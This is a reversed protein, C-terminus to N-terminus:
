ENGYIKEIAHSWRSRQAKSIAGASLDHFGGENTLVKLITKSIKEIVDAQNVHKANIAYGCTKDIIIAPGGLDLCIVPLGHAMAELVVNGSSDHLSPFLLVDNNLYLESLAEKSVWNIWNINKVLGLNDALKRWRHEDPGQGVMTLQIKPNVQIAKAIAKIGLHMGKWYIFRGVYIIKLADHEKLAKVSHVDDIGIELTVKTKSWYCKPIVSRSEATKTYIISAQSFCIWMLPDLKILFNLIDRLFDLIFGKIGFGLRLRWSCREGGGVPGFIFPVGLFGMFSPHRVVGFTIHHVRDFHQNAHIRKALRYAGWQWLVYYLHVGRNGKKWRKAWVPLDYFVFHLNVPKVATQWAAEINTQNNARTLVWVEHDLKALELAWHWGVGPESGKNPECAYASLLIKM